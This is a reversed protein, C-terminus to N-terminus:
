TNQWSPDGLRGVTDKQALSCRAWALPSVGRTSRSWKKSGESLRLLSAQALVDRRLSVRWGSRPAPRPLAINSQKRPKTHIISASVVPAVSLYTKLDRM